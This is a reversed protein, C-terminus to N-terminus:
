MWELLIKKMEKSESLENKEQKIQFAGRKARREARRLEGVCGGGGPGVGGERIAHRLENKGVAARWNEPLTRGGEEGKHERHFSAQLHVARGHLNVLVDIRSFEYALHLSTQTVLGPALAFTRIRIRVAVAVVIVTFVPRIPQFDRFFAFSRIRLRTGNRMRSSGGGKGIAVQGM